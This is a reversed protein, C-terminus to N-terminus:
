NGNCTYYLTGTLSAFTFTVARKSAASVYPQTSASSSNATCSAWTAYGSNAFTLTVSTAASLGSVYGGANTGTITGASALPASGAEHKVGNADFQTQGISGANLSYASFPGATSCYGTNGAGNACTFQSVGNARDYFDLLSGADMIEWANSALQFSAAVAGGTVSLGPGYYINSAVVNGNDSIYFNQGGAANLVQMDTRAGAAPRLNVPDGSGEGMFVTSTVSSITANIAELTSGSGMNLDCNLPCIITGGAGGTASKPTFTMWANRGTTDSFAVWDSELGVWAKNTVEDFGADVPRYEVGGATYFSM